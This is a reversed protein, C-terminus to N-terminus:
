LHYKSIFEEPYMIPINLEKAKLIKGSLQTKDKTLVVFVDKRMSNALIGGKSIIKSELEKDRFGTMLIIKKYIESSTDIDVKEKVSTDVFLKDDLNCDRLFELFIPINNVFTEATATSFGKIKSLKSIKTQVDDTSTLIDPYASLIAAIKTMSFGRGLLNSHAMIQALSAKKINEQIGNVIKTAMKEKFGEVTDFDSITMKLIKPITNFGAKVIRAINGEALDAVGIGKFFGAINKIMVTENESKNELIVDVHTENWTYQETPMKPEVAPEVVKNIYPIVDGSRIIEVIAGVGIRNKEIFGANFGTAKSIKVGGLNITEFLVTPKLFGDKSPRWLVDVVKAEASQDSLVMKFAFSHKPNGSTRPYVADNSVIIGDIQYEYNVRLDRLLESLSENTIDTVISHKVVEVDIKELLKMQESPKIEPSIVEYAVFRIDAIKEDVTQRNIIGSVLNRPNAFKTAYKENFVSKEMIFEGRIVLGKEKPLRLYPILNTIDQGVKGDGRTYLKSNGDEKYIYMGSVGDLKCSLVYPGKYISKWNALANTDPKIKDMSWMEYPLQIKNKGVPAGIQQLVEADPYKNKMYDEILDYENDTIIPTENRYLENTIGLADTLEKRSLTDLFGIGKERFNKVFEKINENNELLENPEEKEPLVPVPEQEPVPLPLPSPVVINEPISVDDIMVIKTKKTKIAKKPQSIESVSNIEIKKNRIKKQPKENSSVVVTPPLAEVTPEGIKTNVFRGDIRQTPEKYDLNLFDFISKEDPFTHDVKGGTTKVTIGHENMSYGMLLAKARMVTNFGKSGTFYLISFPYETPTSYLFDIRRPTANPNLQSITLSKTEGSSLSEILIKENFLEQIFKKYVDNTDGTIIVDIDGSDEAGRRFSGVIEFRAHADKPIKEFIEAFKEKYKEIESRPIREQIADYYKLGIKQKDNLLEDQRERLQDLTLLKHKEVLDKATKPGVGYIDSFVNIPNNKEREILDLKGDKVYTELKEIVTKGIGKLGKLQDVTTIDDTISLITERANAYARAKFPEGNRQMIKELTELLSVFKENWRTMISDTTKDNIENEVIIKKPSEIIIKEVSVPKIKRTYKRKPKVIPVIPFSESPESPEIIIKEVSVPKIKRTYKRKPKVIPVIPSPESPEIINEIIPQQIPLTNELDNIVIKNKRTYKRKPKIISDSNVDKDKKIYKRKIKIIGSDM